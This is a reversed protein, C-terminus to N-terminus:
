LDFKSKLGAKLEPPFEDVSQRWNEEGFAQKFTHLMGRFINHLEPKPEKYHVLASCFYPFDNIIGNTNKAVTYCLGKYAQHKEDNASGKLLRLSM